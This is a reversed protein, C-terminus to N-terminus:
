GESAPDANTHRKGRGHNRDIAQKIQKLFARDSFPKRVFGVAGLAKARKATREGSHGSVVITPLRTGETAMRELLDLGSMGPLRVDLVLCGPRKTDCEALFAEASSFTEAHLGASKLLLGLSDRVARDDDVVFVTPEPDITGSEKAV